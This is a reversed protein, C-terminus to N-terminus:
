ELRGRSQARGGARSEAGGAGAAVVPGFSQRSQRRKSAATALREGLGDEELGAERQQM